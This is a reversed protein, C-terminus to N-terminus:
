ETRKYLIIIYSIKLSGLNNKTYRRNISKELHLQRGKSVRQVKIIYNNDNFTSIIFQKYYKPKSDGYIM